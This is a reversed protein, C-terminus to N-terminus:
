SNVLREFDRRELEKQKVEGWTIGRSEQNESTHQRMLALVAEMKKVRASDHFRTRLLKVHDEIDSTTAYELRPRQGNRLFIMRPMNEFGPLDMQPSRRRWRDGRKRNIHWALKELMWAEKLDEILV